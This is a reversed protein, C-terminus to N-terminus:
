YQFVIELWLLEFNSMIEHNTVTQTEAVKMIQTGRPLKPSLRRLPIQAKTLWDTHGCYMLM